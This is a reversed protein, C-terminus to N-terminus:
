YRYATMANNRRKPLSVEFLAMYPRHWTPFTVLEHACWMGNKEVGDWDLNEPYDHIGPIMLLSLTRIHKSCPAHYTGAIQFYSLKQDYPMAYFRQLARIFLSVQINNEPDTAWVNCEYRLPPDQGHPVPIGVIPYFETEGTSM